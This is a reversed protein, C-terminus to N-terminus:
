RSYLAGGGLVAVVGAAGLALAKRDLGRESARPSSKPEIITWEEDFSGAPYEAAITLGQGPEINTHAFEASAGEAGHECGSRSGREGYWCATDAPEGPTKLTMRFDNIPEAFGTGIINWYIEDEGNDGAGANPIGAVTYSIEYSHVGTLNQKDPDGIYVGVANSTREVNIDTAAGTYSTATFESFDYVRQHDPDGEIDQRTVFNLYIGRSEINQFDYEVDITVAMRGDEGLEAEVHFENFWTEDDAQAPAAAWVLVFSLLVTLAIVAAVKAPNGRPQVRTNM